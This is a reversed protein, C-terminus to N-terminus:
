DGYKGGSPSKKAGKKKPRVAGEGAGNKRKAYGDYGTVMQWAATATVGLETGIQAFTLGRRRLQKARTTLSAHEPSRTRAM